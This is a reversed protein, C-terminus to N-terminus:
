KLSYAQVKVTGWFFDDLLKRDPSHAAREVHGHRALKSIIMGGTLGKGRHCLLTTQIRNSNSLHGRGQGNFASM